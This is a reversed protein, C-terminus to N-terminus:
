IVLSIIFSKEYLSVINWVQSFNEWKKAIDSSLISYFKTPGLKLNKPGKIAFSNCFPGVIGARPTRRHGSIRSQHLSEPEIQRIIQTSIM